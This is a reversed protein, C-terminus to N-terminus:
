GDLIESGQAPTVHVDDLEELASSFLREAGSMIANEGALDHIDRVLEPGLKLSKPQSFVVCLCASM